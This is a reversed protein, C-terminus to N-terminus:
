WALLQHLFFRAPNCTKAVVRVMLIFLRFRGNPTAVSGSENAAVVVSELKIESAMVFDWQPRVLGGFRVSPFPPPTHAHTRIHTHTRTHPPAHSLSLTHTHTHTHQLSPTLSLHPPALSSIVRWGISHPTTTIATRPSSEGCRAQKFLLWRQLYVGIHVSSWAVPVHVFLLVLPSSHTTYLHHRCVVAVFHFLLYLLRPPVRANDCPTDTINGSRWPPDSRWPPHHLLSVYRVFSSSPWQVNKARRQTACRRSRM